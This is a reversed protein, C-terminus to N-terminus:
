GDPPPWQGNARDRLFQQWAPQYDALCRVLALAPVDLAAAAEELTSGASLLEWARSIRVDDIQVSPFPVATVKGRRVAPVHMRQEHDDIAGDIGNAIARVFGIARQDEM